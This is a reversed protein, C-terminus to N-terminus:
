VGERGCREYLRYVGVEHRVCFLERVVENPEAPGLTRSGNPESAADWQSTLILWDAERLEDPLGSGARNATLPNMEMYYSAPDLKPLLFYLYTAGYNMRRLDLPGVYLSEGPRSRREAEAVVEQVNRAVGANVPYFARSGNRVAEPSWPRRLEIQDQLLLACAVLLWVACAWRAGRGWGALRIALLALAPLLSLAIVAVPRVHFEDARFLVHPLLGGILLGAALLIRGELVHRTRWALALGAAGYICALAISVILLNTPYVWEWVVPLQRGERAFPVDRVLQEIRAPGVILAHPVYLGATAVLGALYGLRGRRDALLVLPLASVIVAPVFDFRVLCALGAAGGAAVLLWTRHRARNTSGAVGTAVLALGLLAFGIAGYTAYAWVVENALLSTSVIGALVAALLGAIRFALIFLSLVILLRYVLGVVRETEVSPDLVAFAGAVLWANAPGYFTEFDRHPVAGDLVRDAYAVVAGEDMEAGGGSVLPVLLGLAFLTVAVAAVAVARQSRWFTRTDDRLATEGFTGTTV